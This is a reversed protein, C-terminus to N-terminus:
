IIGGGGKGGIGVGGIGGVGDAKRTSETIGYLTEVNQIFLSSVLYLNNSLRFSRKM